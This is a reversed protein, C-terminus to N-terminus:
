AWRARWRPTRCAWRTPWGCCTATARGCRAGARPRRRAAGCVAGARADECTLPRGADDDPLAVERSPRRHRDRVLNTAIRFLYNRRHADDDFVSRRASCATTPTRCCTTPRAAARGHGARPVGLPPTGNTRLVGPVGGRDHAAGPRGRGGELALGDVDSLTMPRPVDRKVNYDPLLGLRRSLFYSAAASILFGLGIAVVLIGMSSLPQGIEEWQQRQGVFQLGLGTLLLVAGAQVSWFIRGFPAGVHRPQADARAHHAGVRPVAQRGAVPHLRAPRRQTTFRDLLKTHVETQVKSQRLWRRHDVLMKVLWILTGTVVAFISFIQVGNIVDRWVRVAEARPGYDEWSRVHETGFFYAPNRAVEPHRAVFAALGPLDGHVAREHAAVSRPAAGRGTVAPVAAAGGDAPRADRASRGPEGAAGVPRRRPRVAAAPQTTAPRAPQAHATGLQASLALPVLAFTLPRRIM